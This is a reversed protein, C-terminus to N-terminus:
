MNAKMWWTAVYIELTDGRSADSIEYLTYDSLVSKPIWMENASCSRLDDSEWELSSFCVAKETETEAAASVIGYSERM